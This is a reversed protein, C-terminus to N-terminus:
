KDENYESNPRIERGWLLVGNYPNGVGLVTAGESSLSIEVRKESSWEKKAM